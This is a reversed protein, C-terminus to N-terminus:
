GIVFSYRKSRNSQYYRMIIEDIPRFVADLIEELLEIEKEKSDKILASRYPNPYTNGKINNSNQTEGKYIFCCTYEGSDITWIERELFGLRIERKSLKTKGFFDHEGIQPGPPMYINFVEAYYKFRTGNEIATITHIIRNESEIVKPFEKSKKIM